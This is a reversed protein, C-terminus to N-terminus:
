TDADAHLFALRAEDELGRIENEWGMTETM